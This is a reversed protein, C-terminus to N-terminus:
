IFKNQKEFEKKRETIINKLKERTSKSIHMEDINFELYEYFENYEKIMSPTYNDYNYKISYIFSDEWFKKNDQIDNRVFRKTTDRLDWWKILFPKEEKKIDEKVHNAKKTEKSEKKMEIEVHNKIKIKDDMIFLHKEIEKILLEKKLKSYNSIKTHLNYEKIISKLQPITFKSFM